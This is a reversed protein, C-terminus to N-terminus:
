AGINQGVPDNNCAASHTKGRIRQGACSFEDMM